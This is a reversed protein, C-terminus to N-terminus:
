MKAIQRSFWVLSILTKLRSILEETSSTFRFYLFFLNQCHENFPYNSNQLECLLRSLRDSKIWLYRDKFEVQNMETFM